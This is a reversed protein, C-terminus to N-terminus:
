PTAGVTYWRSRKAVTWDQSVCAEEEGASIPYFPVFARKATVPLTLHPLMGPPQRQLNDRKLSLYLFDIILIM